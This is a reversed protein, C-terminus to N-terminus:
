TDAHSGPSRKPALEAIRGRRKAIAERVKRVSPVVGLFALAGASILEVDDVLITFEGYHGESLEVELGPDQRLM